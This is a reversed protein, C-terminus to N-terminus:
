SHGPKDSFGREGVEQGNLWDELIKSQVQYLVHRLGEVEVEEDGAQRTHRSPCYILCSQRIYAAVTPDGRLNQAVSVMGIFPPM